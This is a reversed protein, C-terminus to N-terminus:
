DREVWLLRHELREAVGLLLRVAAHPHPCGKHVRGRPAPLDLPPLGSYPSRLFVRSARSTAATMLDEARQSVSRRATLYRDSRWPLVRVDGSAAIARSEWGREELERIA